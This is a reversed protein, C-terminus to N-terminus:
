SHEANVVQLGDSSSRPAMPSARCPLRRKSRAQVGEAASIGHATTRWSTPIMM